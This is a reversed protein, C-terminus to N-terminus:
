HHAQFIGFVGSGIGFGQRVYTNVPSATLQPNWNTKSQLRWQGLFDAETGPGGLVEADYRAVSRTPDPFKCTPPGGTCTSGTVCTNGTGVTASPVFCSTGAAGANGITSNTGFVDIWNNNIVSSTGFDYMAQLPRFSGWNFLINNTIATGVFGSAVNFGVAVSGVVAENAVINNSFTIPGLNYLDGNGSTSGLTGMAAGTNGTVGLAPYDSSVIGALIVNNTVVISSPSPSGVILATPNRFFLNNQVTGNGAQFISECGDNAFVNNHADISSVVGSNATGSLAGTPIIGAQYFNQSSCNHVASPVSANWGNNDYLSDIVQISAKGILAGASDTSSFPPNPTGEIPYANTVINRRLFITGTPTTAGTFEWNTVKHFFRFLCDEFMNWGAFSSNEFSTLGSNVTNVNFNPNTPDRDFGYLELGVVALYTGTAGGSGVGCGTGSAQGFPGGEIPNTNYSNFTQWGSPYNIRPRAFEWTGNQTVLGPNGTITYKFSSTGTVTIPFIGNYGSTGLWTENIAKPTVGLIMVEPSWQWTGCSSSCNGVNTQLQVGFHTADIPYVEQIGDILGTGQFALQYVSINTGINGDVATNLGHPVTTTVVAIFPLFSNTTTTNSPITGLAAAATTITSIAFTTTPMGHPNTTTVSVVFPATTTVSMALISFKSTYPDVVGPQSPDYSGIIMPATASAGNCRIINAEGWVDGKKLLMWDPFNNRMAAMAATLTAYPHATSYSNAATGIVATADNGTSSSVYLVQTNTTGTAPTFVSWGNGDLTPPNTPPGMITGTFSQASAVVVSALLLAIALPYKM